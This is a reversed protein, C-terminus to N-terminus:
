SMSCPKMGISPAGSSALRWRAMTWDNRIERSSAGDDRRRGSRGGMQRRRTRLAVKGGAALDGRLCARDRARGEGRRRANHGNRRVSHALASTPAHARSSARADSAVRETRRGGRRAVAGGGAAVAVARLARARAEGRHQDGASLRRQGGAEDPRRFRVMSGKPIEDSAGQRFLAPAGDVVGM